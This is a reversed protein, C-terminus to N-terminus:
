YRANSCDIKRLTQITFFADWGNFEANYDKWIEHYIKIAESPNSDKLSKAQQELDRKM